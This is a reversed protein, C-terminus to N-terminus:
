PNATLLPTCISRTPGEHQGYSSGTSGWGSPAELRDSSSSSPVAGSLPALSSHNQWIACAPLSRSSSSEPGFSARGYMARKLTKASNVHGEVIGSSWHLTLGATVADLDQRLFGAFGSVPKPADLEAQRIWETLLFGRRHRLLEAFARALDCARAIDPCAIRVDLLRRELEPPLADQPRTIWSTIKRPSPIDARIPGPNGARIATLHKRVVQRSGRYGRERIELFLRSGSVQGLSETFRTNLYPKFPELVGVPQCENASALIQDLDTDRFRRVTKRDLHLRRAIASITWGAAILKQVDAHRRRTREMIPTRPLEPPPLQMLLPAEPIRSTVEDVRKRLCARHQHCTKEVAAALNQLLHWGDAVEVVDPVAEKIARTYASTRDRCIIEAGPHERMWAGFTESTRDPLVDVVRGAEVDVLITGYTRRRRFAFEDVGLVRPAREPVPPPDLLELLAHM